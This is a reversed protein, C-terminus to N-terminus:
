DVSQVSAGESLVRLKEYARNESPVGGCDKRERLRVPVALLPPPKKRDTKGGPLRDPTWVSAGDSRRECVGGGRNVYHSNHGSIFLIQM